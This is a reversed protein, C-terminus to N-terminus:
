LVNALLILFEGGWYSSLYVLVFSVFRRLIANPAHPIFAYLAQM